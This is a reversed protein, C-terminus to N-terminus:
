KKIYRITKPNSLLGLKSKVKKFGGFQRVRSVLRGAGHSTLFSATPMYGDFRKIFPALENQLTEYSYAKAIFLDIYNESEYFNEKKIGSAKCFAKLNEYIRYFDGNFLDPEISLLNLNKSKYFVEKTARKIDYNKSKNTNSNSLGWIEIYFDEKNQILFDYRFTKGSKDDVVGNVKHSIKNLFLFNDFLIEYISLVYDGDLTIFQNHTKYEYGLKNALDKLNGHYKLGHYLDKHGLGIFDTKSPFRGITKCINKLTPEVNEWKMWHGSPKINRYEAKSQSNLLSIFKKTGGFKDIAGRLDRRNLTEFDKISPFYGLHTIISKLETIINTENWKNSNSRTPELIIGKEKIIKKFERFGFFKYIANKLDDRGKTTIERHSPFYKFDYQKIFKIYEEITKEKTWFDPPNRNISEDYTKFGLRTAVTGYGGFNPLAYKVVSSLGMSSLETASPFRNLKQCIPLLTLELNKWDNWYGPPRRM